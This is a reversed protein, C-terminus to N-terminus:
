KSGKLMANERRLQENRQILARNHDQETPRDLKVPVGVPKFAGMIAVEIGLCVHTDTREQETGFSECKDDNYMRGYFVKAKKDLINNAVKAILIAQDTEVIEKFNDAHFFM